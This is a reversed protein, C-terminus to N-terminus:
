GQQNILIGRMESLREKLQRIEEPPIERIVEETERNIVKVVLEGSEKDVNFHVSAKGMEELRQNVMRVEEEIDQQNLARETLSGPQLQEVPQTQKTPPLDQANAIEPSTLSRGAEADSQRVSASVTRSFDRTGSGTAPLAVKTIDM